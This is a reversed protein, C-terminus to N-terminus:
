EAMGAETRGRGMAQTARHDAWAAETERDVREQEAESPYAAEAAAKAAEV